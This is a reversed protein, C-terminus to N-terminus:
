MICFFDATCTCRALAVMVCYHSVFLKLSIIENM